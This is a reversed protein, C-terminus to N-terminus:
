EPFHLELDSRLRAFALVKAPDKEGRKANDIEAGSAVDLGSPGVEAGAQKANSPTIGGALWVPVQAGFRDVFARAWTWDTQAGMGGFGPVLADLLVWAPNRRPWSLTELDPTGRIVWVQPMELNAYDDIPRNGHLQVADLGLLAQAAAIEGPEQDVFVGVVRTTGREAVPWAQLLRAAADVSLGRKSGQWLNIGVYDIKAAACVQLDELRTVGCIKIQLSSRHEVSMRTIEAGAPQSALGVVM